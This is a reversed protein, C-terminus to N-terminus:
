LFKGTPKFTQSLSCESFRMSQGNFGSFASGCKGNRHKSIITECIGDSSYTVGDKEIDTIGYYEPRYLFMVCDADQEIAGSERLDSLLPKKDAREECKRSLQSLAIVPLNLEKAVQKLKRSIQSIEQERNNVKGSITMLQLYDVVVLGIGYKRHMRMARARLQQESLGATDDIYIRLQALEQGAAQIIEGEDTSYDKNLIRMYEIGTLNTLMRTVLQDKSMELSFFCVPVGQRATDLALQISYATKGMSPRAALIILDSNQFKVVKDRLGAMLVFVGMDKLTSTFITNIIGGIHEADKTITSVGLKEVQSEHDALLEFEDQTEDYANRMTELSMQILARRIFKQKIILIHHEIHATSGVMSTLSSVTFMGGASELDNTTKLQEVVTLLDISKGQAHLEQIARFILDNEAAYFYEPKLNDIHQHCSSDILIGGLVAKELDTAQPPIYGILRDPNIIPKEM